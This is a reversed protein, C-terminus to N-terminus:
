LEDKEESEAGNEGNEAGNEGNGAGNEGYLKTIIPAAVEEVAKKAAKLDDASAAPNAEMWKLKEEVASELVAKEEAPLKSDAAGM